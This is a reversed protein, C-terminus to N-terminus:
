EYGYPTAWVTKDKVVQQYKPTDETWIPHLNKAKRPDYDSRTQVNRAEVEGALNMYNEYAKVRGAAHYEPYKNIIKVIHDFRNREQPSLVEKNKLAKYELYIQKVDEDFRLKMNDASVPSGGKNFGEYEQIAHQIEHMLIGKDKAAEKSLVIVDDKASYYASNPKLSPDIETYTNKLHPYAKFLEPHDLVEGLTSEYPSKVIKADKDPIEYRLRGDTGTFFGTQKFVEEKDINGKKILEHAKDVAKFDLSKSKVGAFVGLTGDVAKSVLPAPAFTDLGALDAMKEIVYPSTNVSGDENVAWMPLKGQSVEGPTKLAKWASSVLGKLAEETRQTLANGIKTGKSFDKDFWNSSETQSASVVAEKSAEPSSNEQPAVERGEQSKLAGTAEQSGQLPGRPLSSLELDINSPYQQGDSTGIPM